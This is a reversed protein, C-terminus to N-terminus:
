NRPGTEANQLQSLAAKLDAAYSRQSGEYRAIRACLAMIAEQRREHASAQMDPQAKSASARLAHWVQRARGFLINALPTAHVITNM